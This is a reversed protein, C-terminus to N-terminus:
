LISNFHKNILDLDNVSDVEFWGGHIFIAKVPMLNNIILQIFDTMYMNIYNHGRHQICETKIKNYFNKIPIVAHRSIKILGIYQGQIDAYNKPKYGLETIFGNEDIKMTEADNLPNEMRMEWLKKWDKDVIVSIGDHSEILANLAKSNFLIDGYCIVIDDAGTFEATACFLSYVMNTGEYADNHYQKTNPYNMKESKYGTILSIDTIGKNNLKELTHEILPKGNIEVLPKPKDNTYPRNKKGQGAALIIAKM